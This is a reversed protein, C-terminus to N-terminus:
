KKMANLIMRMVAWSEMPKELEKKWGEYDTFLGKTFAEEFADLKHQPIKSVNNEISPEIKKIDFSELIGDCITDAIKDINEIIWDADYKNDHFSVEVLVAPETTNALEYMHKGEGYFNYGEKIGRDDVPTIASLKDYIIKAIRHGEGGFKHCFM